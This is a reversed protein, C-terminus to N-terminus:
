ISSTIWAPTNPLNVVTTFGGPAIWQASLEQVSYVNAGANPVIFTVVVPVTVTQNRAVTFYTGDLGVVAGAPAAYSVLMPQSAPAGNKKVTFSSPNFAPGKVFSPLGMDVNSGVATVQVNFTAAYTSTSNGKQDTITNMKTITPVGAISFAPGGKVVTIVNGAAMGVTTATSGNSDSAILNTNDMAAAIAIGNAGINSVDVKVTYPVTTNVPIAAGNTGVTIPAFTATGNVVSASSVLTSGQYLYAASLSGSGSSVNFHVAVSKLNLNSNQAGVDFVLVPLGLYQNNTTDTVAVTQALPSSPDVSLNAQANSQAPTCTYGFPCFTSSPVGPITLADADAGVQKGGSYGVAKLGILVDKGTKNTFVVQWEAITQGHTNITTQGLANDRSGNVHATFGPVSATGNNASLMLQIRDVGALNFRYSVVEPSPGGIVTSTVSLKPNPTCVFGAPCVTPDVTPSAAANQQPVLTIAGTVAAATQSGADAIGSISAFSDLANATGFSAQVSPLSYTLWALLALVLLYKLDKGFMPQNDILKM